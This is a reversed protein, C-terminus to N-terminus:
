NEKGSARKGLFFYLTKSGHSHLFGFKVFLAKETLELWCSNRAAPLRAMGLQQVVFGSKKGEVKCKLDVEIFKNTIVNATFSLKENSVYEVQATRSVSVM